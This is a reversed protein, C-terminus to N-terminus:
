LKTTYDLHIWADVSKGKYTQKAKLRGWRGSVEVITYVGKPIKGILGYSASPGTRMNLYNSTNVRVKFSEFPEFPAPKAGLKKNVEEAIQGHLNYLYDGPCAKNAFWRHVAMNQKDIKGVLSKDSQWKLEKIAPNRKCIDVLLNVLATYAKDTIKYPHKAECAVEISIARHDIDAGSIGNVRIPQKNKDVGGSCWSRDKEDVCLGISGDYGVVYNCSAQKTTPQFVECGRKATVQGVFCHIIVMDIEHNRPSTKNPSILTYTALSSNSM